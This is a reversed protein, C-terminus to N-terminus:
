KIDLAYKKVDPDQNEGNPTKKNMGATQHHQNAPNTCRKIFNHVHGHQGTGQHYKRANHHGHQVWSVRRPNHKHM